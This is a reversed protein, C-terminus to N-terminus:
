NKCTNENVAFFQKKFMARKKRCDILVNKCISFKPFIHLIDVVQVRVKLESLM